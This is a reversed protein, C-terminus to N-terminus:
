LSSLFLAARSRHKTQKNISTFVLGAGWGLGIDLPPGTQYSLLSFGRGRPTEDKEKPLAVNDQLTSWTM